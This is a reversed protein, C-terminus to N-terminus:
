WRHRMPAPAPDGGTREGARDGTRESTSTPPSSRAQRAMPEGDLGGCSHGPPPAPPLRPPDGRCQWAPRPHAAPPAQGDPLPDEGMM